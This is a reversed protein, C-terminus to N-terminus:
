CDCFPRDQKIPSQGTVFLKNWPITILEQVEAEKNSSKTKLLRLTELTPQWLTLLNNGVFNIM